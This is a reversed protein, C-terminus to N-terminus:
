GMVIRLVLALADMRSLTIGIVRTKGTRSRTSGARPLLDLAYARYRIRLFIRLCHWWVATSARHALTCHLPAALCHTSIRSLGAM